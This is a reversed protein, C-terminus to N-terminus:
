EETEVEISESVVEETEEEDELAMFTEELVESPDDSLFEKEM